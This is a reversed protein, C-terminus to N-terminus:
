VLISPTGKISVMLCSKRTDDSYVAWQKFDYYKEIQHGPPSIVIGSAFAASALTVATASLTATLKKM